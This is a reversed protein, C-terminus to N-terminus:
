KRCQIEGLDPLPDDSKKYIIDCKYAENDWQISVVNHEELGTIYVEGNRGVPIEETKMTVIAGAPVPDGSPLLLRMTAGSAPKIPFKLVLGSRYYPIINIEGKDIEADIPLDNLEVRIPNNQYALLEPVLVTGDDATKGIIQNQSYVGVDKYGPVEVVAFSQYIKRSLYASENLFIVAGSAQLQGSTLKEQQAIGITGTAMDNQASFSAQYNNQQGNAAYLNYGYGPGRPLSRQVQVTGQNAHRQGTGSMNLTTNDTLAYTLTLFISQNRRNKVDSLASINLFLDQSLTQSFTANVLNVRPCHRNEQRVYGVSFSASDYLGLGLFTTLQYRPMRGLANGLQVFSKSAQQFNIGFNVDQASQRQFGASFLSGTKKLNPHEGHHHFHHDHARRNHLHHKYQNCSVAGALSFVGFTSLLYNVGIGIAQQKEMLEARTEGTLTNTIGLLHTGSFALNGYDNSEIGYNKRVFGFSYDFKQLGETLLISSVYFPVNVIQQRGLIDTTILNITGAGTTTPIAKITFPGSNTSHKGLLADNVYLDVLSPSVAAGRAVPLPFPIFAPQTQFNTGWFIGGLDVSNGWLGPVTFADGLILTKMDEPQDYRWNSNLRVIRDKSKSHSHHHHSPHEYVHRRYACYQREILFDSLAVGYQSFVNASLLGSLSHFNKNKQAYLDYNFYAGLSSEMPTVLSQDRMTIVNPNFHMNPASITIEMKQKDAEYTLGSFGKLQYYTLGEHDIKKAHKPLKFQWKLLDLSNAYIEGTGDDLFLATDGTKWLNIEVNFLYEDYHKEQEEISSAHVFNEFFNVSFLFLFALFLHLKGAKIKHCPFTNLFNEKIQRWM